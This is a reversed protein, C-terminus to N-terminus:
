CREKDFQATGRSKAHRQANHQNETPIKWALYLLRVGSVAEGFKEEEQVVAAFRSYKLASLLALM